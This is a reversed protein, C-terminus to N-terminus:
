RFPKEPLEPKSIVYPTNTLAYIIHLARGIADGHTTGTTLIAVDADSLYDACKRAIRACTPKPDPRKQIRLVVHSLMALNALLRRPYRARPKAKTIEPPAAASKTM